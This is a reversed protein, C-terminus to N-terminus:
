IKVPVPKQWKGSLVEEGPWYIRMIVFYGEKPTPLWNSEKDKGPSTSQFYFDLSGDANFKLPSSSNLVHRSLALNAPLYFDNNYLTLSWFAKTQPIRNADIHLLYKKSGDLFLSDKDTNIWVYMADEMLNGGIGGFLQLYREWYNTNFRCTLKAADYTVGRKANFKAAQVPDNKMFKVMSDKVAVSLQTTDFQLGAGIGFRKFKELVPADYDYPPNKVLLENLKNFYESLTMKAMISAYDKGPQAVIPSTENDRNPNPQGKGWRSLPTITFQDQVKNAFDKADQLGRVMSRGPLFAINTKVEYHKMGAPVEGKWGPGSILYNGGKNGVTRTGIVNDINGWADQVPFVVFRDGVPPMSFVVPEATLDLAGASYLTEANFGKDRQSKEDAAKKMNYFANLTAEYQVAHNITMAIMPYGWRYAETLTQLTEQDAVPANQKKNGCSTGAILTIFMLAAIKLSTKM